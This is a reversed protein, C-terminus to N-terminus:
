KVQFVAECKHSTRTRQEDTQEDTKEELLMEVPVVPCNKIMSLMFSGAYLRELIYLDPWNTFFLFLISDKQRIIHPKSQGAGQERLQM